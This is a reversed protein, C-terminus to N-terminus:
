FRRKTRSLYAEISTLVSAQSHHPIHFKAAAKAAPSANDVAYSHHALNLMEIDNDNDGFAMVQSSDIGLPAMIQQLGWAKHTGIPMLDISGYGSTVAVLKGAFVQNFAAVVRSVKEETVWLGMKYFIDREPFDTIDPLYTLRSLFAAMQSPEIALLDAFPQGAGQAMYIKEDHALMFCYERVGDQLYDIVERILSHSLSQRYLTQGNQYIHGGNEAVFTLREEFGRFIRLLRDMGNGSAVVFPIDRKELETLVTDFRRRDFGGKEDLFTGDMDTAILKITM